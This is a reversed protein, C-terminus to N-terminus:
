ETELNYMKEIYELCSAYEDDLDQDKLSDYIGRVFDRFEQPTKGILQFFLQEERGRLGYDKTCLDKLLHYPMKGQMTAEFRLDGEDLEEFPRLKYSSGTNAPNEMWGTYLLFTNTRCFFDFEKEPIDLERLVINKVIDTPLDQLEEIEWRRSVTDYMSNYHDLLVYVGLIKGNRAMDLATHVDFLPPPHETKKIVQLERHLTGM